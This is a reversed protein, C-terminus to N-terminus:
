GAGASLPSIFQLARVATAKSAAEQEACADGVLEVVGSRRVVVLEVAGVM